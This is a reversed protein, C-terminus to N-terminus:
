QRKNYYLILFISIIIIIFFSYLFILDKLAIFATSLVAAIAFLAYVFSRRRSKINEEHILNVRNQINILKKDIIKSTIEVDKKIEEVKKIIEDNTYRKLIM